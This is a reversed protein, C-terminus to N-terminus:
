QSLNKKKARTASRKKRSKSKKNYLAEIDDPCLFDVTIGCEDLVDKFGWWESDLAQLIPPHDPHANAVAIFMRDDPDFNNLRTDSPFEKFDVM